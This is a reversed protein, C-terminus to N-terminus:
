EVQPSVFQQEMIYNMILRQLTNLKKLTNKLADVSTTKDTAFKKPRLFPIIGIYNLKNPLKRIILLFM